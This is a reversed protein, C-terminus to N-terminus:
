DLINLDIHHDFILGEFHHLQWFRSNYRFNHRDIILYNVRPLTRRIIEKPM